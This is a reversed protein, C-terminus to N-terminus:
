EDFHYDIQDFRDRAFSFVLFLPEAGTSRLSHKANPPIFVAHGPGVEATHGDVTMHGSGSVIYYTEEPGHHHLLLAEGPAIEAIGTVLGASPSREGAILLKWRVGSRGEIGDEQWSEWGIDAQDVVVPRQANM